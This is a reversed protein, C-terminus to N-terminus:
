GAIFVLLLTGLLLRYIVFPLFSIRSIYDLLLRICLYSSLGALVFGTALEAVQVSKEQIIPAHTISHTVFLEWLQWGAAGSITPISILFSIKAASKRTFGLLLAATITIGARSTGPILALCQAMGILLASGLGLSRTDRVTKSLRDAVLLAIGFVITTVAIVEIKRLEAEVYFRAFFGVLLVPLCAVLLLIALRSDNTQCGTTLRQWLAVGLQRLDPHFYFIVAVLSGLHVAIDFALGQDQWGLLQAPLILHAASSIPLFETIGQILALILVQLQEM